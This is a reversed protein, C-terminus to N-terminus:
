SGLPCSPLHRSWPSCVQDIDCLYVVAFNKVQDAIKYLVEDQLM